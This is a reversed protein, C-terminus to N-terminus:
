KTTVSKGKLLTVVFIGIIALICIFILFLMLKDKMFVRGFYKLHRGTRKLVGELEQNQDIIRLIQENQRELEEIQADALNKIDGTKGIM